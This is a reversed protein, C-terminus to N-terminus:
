HAGGRETEGRRPSRLLEIAYDRLEVAERALPRSPVKQKAREGNQLRARIPAIMVAMAAFLSRDQPSPGLLARRARGSAAPRAGGRM